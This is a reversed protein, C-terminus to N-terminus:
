AEVGRPIQGLDRLPQMRPALGPSILRRQILTFALETLISLAAVIVSGAFV